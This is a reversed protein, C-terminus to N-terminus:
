AAWTPSPSSTYAGSWGTSRSEQLSASFSRRESGDSARIAVNSGTVPTWLRRPSDYATDCWALSVALLGPALLTAPVFVPGVITAVMEGDFVFGPETIWLLALSVTLVALVPEVTQRRDSPSLVTRTM